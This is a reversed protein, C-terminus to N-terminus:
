LELMADFDDDGGGKDEGEGTSDSSGSSSSDGGAVDEGDFAMELDKDVAEKFSKMITMLKSNNRMTAILHASLAELTSDIEERNTGAIELVEPMYNNDAMWKRLLYHKYINKLSDIHEAMSGSVDESFIESSVVSEIAKELNEKYLDFEESLNILDTDEPKPLEIYVSESLKDLYYEIFATRDKTLLQKEEEELNSEIGGIRESILHKLDERIEEDNYLILSIFKGVDGELKKQYVAIRKSLLINNNVVSKAFEPSFGNDITEPPLGLAIISQKRLEDELDSDPVTHSIGANEFDIRVEPLRPNNEYTFQLGARQIWNVLDVPNNIGLPLFNQRLKLVSAQVQEITKEPDTDNPDLSINVKTVDISQKALAMVKAFLLIARLSSQVALNELLSKGVGTENYQFAFYVMQEKPVYLVSTRQDQLARSFMLFYIDNKSAVEVSKGYLSSKVTSFLQRELITRYMDFLGDVDVGDSSNSVLNRYAKQVPTLNTNSQHLSQDLRNLDADNINVSLPKGSEDLLVFYGVHNKENGPVFVPIVSETPFKTVMPRGLSKRRTELKNKIYEVETNGQVTGRDRFIDLYKVKDMSETSITGGRKTSNRVVTSAIKDRISGYQLIQTNDTLHILSESALYSMLEESGPKSGLKKTMRESTQLLNRPETVSRLIVDVRSKYEEMGYSPFLDANIVEDVASEPIISYVCAGSTFLAERVIDPLEEELNYNDEIYTSITSLLVSSIEPNMEFKKDLRYNLQIDTMKKPSLISSVLIQISLEIDPFLQVINKNNNRVGIIRNHISELLGRNIQLRNNEVQAGTEKDAVLKGIVPLDAPNSEIIKSAAVKKQKNQNIVNIMNTTKISM